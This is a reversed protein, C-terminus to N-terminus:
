LISNISIWNTNPITGLSVTSGTNQRTQLVIKTWFIFIGPLKCSYVNTNYASEQATVLGNCDVTGNGVIYSQFLNNTTVAFNGHTVQATVM